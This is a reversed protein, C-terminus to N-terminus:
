GDPGQVMMWTRDTLALLDGVRLAEGQAALPQRERGRIVMTRALPQVVGRGACRLHARSVRPDCAQREQFLQHEADGDLAHRGVREGPHLSIRRGDEPGGILELILYETDIFKSLALEAPQLTTIDWTDSDRLSTALPAGLLPAWIPAPSLLSWLEPLGAGSALKSALGCLRPSPQPRQSPEASFGEVHARIRDRRAHLQHRLRMLAHDPPSEALALALHEAGVYGSHMGRSLALAAHLLATAPDLAPWALSARSLLDPNCAEDLTMLDGLHLTWRYWRSEPTAAALARVARRGEAAALVPPQGAALAEMLGENLAAAAEVSVRGAPALVARAGAKALQEVLGDAAVRSPAGGECVAVLVLDADASAGLIHVATSPALAGGPVPLSLGALPRDGHGVLHLLRRAGEPLASEHRPLGWRQGSTELAECLQSVTPDARETRWLARTWPGHRPTPLRGAATRAIVALGVAELVPGDPAWALLEWPLDRADGSADVLLVLPRSHLQARARAEGLATSMAASGHLAAALARGALEEQRSFRADMDPRILAPLAEPSLAAVVRGTLRRVEAPDLHGRSPQLQPHGMHLLWGGSPEPEVRLLLPEVM